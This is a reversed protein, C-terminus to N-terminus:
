PKLIYIQNDISSLLYISEARCELLGGIGTAILEITKNKEIGIGEKSSIVLKGKNNFDFGYIPSPLQAVIKKDSLRYISNKLCFYIEASADAQVQQIMGKMQYLWKIGDPKIIGIQSHEGDYGWLICTNMINIVSYLGKKIRTIKLKKQSPRKRINTHYLTTSDKDNVLFFESSDAAYQTLSTYYKQTGPRFYWSSDLPMFIGGNMPIYINSSDNVFFSRYHFDSRPLLINTLKYATSEEHQGYIMGSASLLISLLLPLIYRNM